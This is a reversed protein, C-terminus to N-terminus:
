MTSLAVKVQLTGENGRGELHCHFPITWLMDQCGPEVNVVRQIEGRPTIRFDVSRSIYACVLLSAGCVVVLM